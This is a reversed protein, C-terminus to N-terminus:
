LHPIIHPNFLVFCFRESLAAPQAHLPIRPAMQLRPFGESLGAEEWRHVSERVFFGSGYPFYMIFQLSSILINFHCWNEVFSHFINM